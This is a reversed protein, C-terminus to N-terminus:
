LQLCGQFDHTTNGKNEYPLILMAIVNYVCRHIDARSDIKKHTKSLYIGMKALDPM